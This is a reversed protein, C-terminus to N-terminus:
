LQSRLWVLYLVCGLGGVVRVITRRTRLRKNHLLRYLHGDREMEVTLYQDLLALAFLAVVLPIM